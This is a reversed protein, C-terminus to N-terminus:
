QGTRAPPRSGTLQLLTLLVGEPLCESGCAQALAQVMAGSRRLLCQPKASFMECRVPEIITVVPRLPYTRTREATLSSDDLLDPVFGKHQTPREGHCGRRAVLGRRAARVARRPQDLLLGIQQWRHSVWTQRRGYAREIHLPVLGLCTQLADALNLHLTAGAELKDNLASGIPRKHSPWREGRELVRGDDICATRRRCAQVQLLRACGVM